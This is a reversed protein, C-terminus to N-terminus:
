SPSRYFGNEHRTPTFAKGSEFRRNLRSLIGSFVGNAPQLLISFTWM